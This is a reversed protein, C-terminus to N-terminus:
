TLIGGPFNFTIQFPIRKFKLKIGFISNEYSVYTLIREFEWKIRRYSNWWSFLTLNIPSEM